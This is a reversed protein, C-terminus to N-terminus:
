PSALRRYESLRSRVASGWLAVDPDMRRRFVVPHGRLFNGGGDASGRWPRGVLGSSTLEGGALGTNRDGASPCRRLIRRNRLTRNRHADSRFLQLVFDIGGATTGAM